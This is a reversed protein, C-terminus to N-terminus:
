PCPQSLQQEFLKKMYDYEQSREQFLIHKQTFEERDWSGDDYSKYLVDFPTASIIYSDLSIDKRNSREGINKALEPLREHLRAKDDHSYSKAHLMGHPEVFVIRQCTNDLIWLIFDPYFGCEEFFGIGSGRSLNRLLFVKKGALANAKESEWYARLDRVFQAESPKLAPPTAQLKDVQELLLPQYLHLNFNIRPMGSNEKHYLCEVDNLLKQIEEILQTESRRVKLIYTPELQKGVVGSNLVLNPDSQDLPRYILAEKTEWQERRRRYFVDVYKRLISMVADQLWARESFTRPRVVAKDVWLTYKAEGLVKKPTDPRILLNTLGKREKYALLDLYVQEWNVWALSEPPINQEKRSRLNVTNVASDSGELVQVQLMDVRIHIEQDPELLLVKERAFDRGEQLRPVVLKEKTLLDQNIRVSLRLEIPEDDEVGERELYNRFQPRQQM